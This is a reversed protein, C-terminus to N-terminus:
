RQELVVLFISAFGSHKAFSIVLLLRLLPHAFSFFSFPTTASLGGGL